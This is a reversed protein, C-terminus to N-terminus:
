STSKEEAEKENGSSLNIKDPQEGANGSEAESIAALNDNEKLLELQKSLAIVIITM